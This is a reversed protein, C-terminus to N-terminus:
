IEARIERASRSSPEECRRGLEDVPDKWMMSFLIEGRKEGIDISSYPQPRAAPPQAPPEASRDSAISRIARM